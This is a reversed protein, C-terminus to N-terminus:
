TRRSNNLAVNTNGLGFVVMIPKESFSSSLIKCPCYFDCPPNNTNETRILIWVKARLADVEQKRSIVKENESDVALAFKANAQTYEHACYVKTSPPLIMMKSLSTWMQKPTGEFLRGCGMAFLTDGTALFAVM